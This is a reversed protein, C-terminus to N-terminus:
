DDGKEQPKKEKAMPAEKVDGTMYMKGGLDLAINDIKIGFLEKMENEVLFACPYINSISPISKERPASVEINKQALQKDFSYLVRFTEGEDICSATILRYGDKYFQKILDPMKELTTTTKSAIM